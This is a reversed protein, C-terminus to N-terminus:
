EEKGGGKYETPSVGVNKKFTRSFYNPDSYGIMSCIEKMSYETTDLLEKAKAIRIGTLYEVFNEGTDEKFIKSFYYPSINVIRSVEDLSIDKQYNQLIYAKANEVLGNAKESRKNLINRCAVVIKDVFWEKLTDLSEANMVIPLYDQRSLFQYTMGGKLYAIHEAWLVFELVKTRIEMINSSYNTAMWEFYSKATELAGNVEGKDVEEFLKRELDIPYDSEYECGIPLDAVHAVAGTTISLANMAESYSETLTELPKVSGMGLRFNIDTKRRLERVMDRALDIQEIRKAYSMEKDPYPIMVAIRNGMVNGVVGKIREKIFNRIDQYKEQMKVATDVSAAVNESYKPNAGLFVMMFGHNEEISLVNKYSVVDGSFVESMIVSYILGSELVPIVTEIKEKILLDKSRRSREEDVLAMAKNLVAIIKNKEMPKNIYEIVGLKISEKAYDFKDYASMVIFTINPNNKRIEKMADIGNIGPMQIDMIAIDPRFNEALEIVSRGTKASEVMCSEGYEKEIIYRLSDIVIGEDDALMIKYM